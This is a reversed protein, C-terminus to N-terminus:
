SVILWTTVALTPSHTDRRLVRGDELDVALLLGKSEFARRVLARV